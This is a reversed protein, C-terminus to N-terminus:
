DTVIELPRKASRRETRVAVNRRALFEVLELSRIPKSIYYGQVQQCGAAGLYDMTERDEVGEAVVELNMNKALQLTTRVIAQNQTDTCLTMIFSKDIKLEQLPINKLQALSSQGTGFDDMAIRVGIDRLCELVFIAKELKRMVTSETVELTLRHAPLQHEKLLQSVFYPLYEDLLDCASINVSVQLEHGADQWKHCDEIARGLVFRTLHQITGAEEAAPVFEDPSLNGYEPHAWRVLAEVGCVLGSALTVKPQYCVHFEDKHIASRLDNVIRLQRLYYQERGPEYVAISENGLRAESRAIMATRLLASADTGHQPYMAIGIETQLAINVNGLMVGTGLSTQIKEANVLAYDLDRHNLVIAFEDYGLHGLLDQDKLDLQLQRASLRILEDSASHGLTTSIENIRLLRISLVALSDGDVDELERSLERTLKARNPLDTLADHMSHHYIHREREAIAAGMLNFSEALEGLEDDSSVSVLADYQGSSMQRAAHTLMRLPRAIGSSVWAAAMAVLSLLMVVFIVLGNRAHVYPAMADQLSRMLVLQVANDDSLLRTSLALHGVGGLDTTYVTELPAPLGSPASTAAGGGSELNKSVVLVAQSETGVLEVGLGTLGAIREVVARDIRFGVVIWGVTTPARLPVVFVQYVASGAIAILQRPPGDNDAVTVSSFETQWQDTFDDTSAVVSGDLDLLMAVSAGVRLSHNRLVSRITDKDGTVAAEKLGFDAALVQVSTNLQDSRSSLYQKVVKAGIQLSNRARQDVDKEVTQMVAFLLM